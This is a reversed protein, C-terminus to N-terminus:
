KEVVYAKLEALKGDRFRWVDCYSSRTVAGDKNKVTIEGCAALYDGDAILNDVKFTPPEIYTEDLWQRVADKGKLTRDGLFHWQTDDTCYSLFKEHDKALIAANAKNLIAKNQDSM